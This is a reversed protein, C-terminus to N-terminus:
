STRMPLSLVFFISPRPDGDCARVYDHIASWLNDVPKVPERKV